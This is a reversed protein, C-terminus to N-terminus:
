QATFGGDVVLNSGTIFSARDSALFLVADVVEDPTGVRGMPHMSALGKRSDAGQPGAFRTLMDTDIAAPSVANVRIKQTAFELALSKTLGLTAHKAAIYLSVNPMGISGAISATNVISGGGTAALLPIAHKTALVVGLVNTDMVARYDEITAMALPKAWEVGANNFLVDLRGFTKRTFAVMNAVDPESTVNAKVFAARGGANEILAVTEVGEKERRGSVVVAAGARAFALAAHRGIGSTAGTILVVKGAFEPAQSKTTNSSTTTTSM